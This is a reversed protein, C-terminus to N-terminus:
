SALKLRGILFGSDAILFRIESGSESELIPGFIQRIGSGPDPNWIALGLSKMQYLEGVGRKIELSRFPYSLPQFNMYM